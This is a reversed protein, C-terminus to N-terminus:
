QKEANVIFGLSELLSKMKRYAGKAEPKMMGIMLFNDLYGILRLGASKFNALVPKLLKM